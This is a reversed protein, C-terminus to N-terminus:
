SIARMLAEAVRRAHGEELGVHLPLSLLRASYERAMPCDETQAYPAYSQNTEYHVGPFIEQENLKEIVQDRCPVAVQYLHRSPVCNAPFPIRQICPAGELLEDYLASLMRRKENDHDLYRLGVLGMAAMVSNGHYKYGVNPVDYRWRYRASKDLTRTFTDKDIGLWSWERAAHDLKEEAFCIMGSDATPLNKVAQFSFVSVDIGHGVHAGDIRTGAMHAADLIIALGKSRCIQVIENLSGTNGGIGVFIVARTRETILRELKRADMCLSRDIDCFVPTLREYLIVHNTSVFTLPTTIVEDGDRWKHQERLLKVALHLGATASNTMHANPLKTYVKWANEFEVTKFGLGTWGCDLCEKIERLVEETRYYPRFLHIKDESTM